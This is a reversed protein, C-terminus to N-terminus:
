EILILCWGSWRGRTLPAAPVTFTLTGTQRCADTVTVTVTSLGAAPGELAIAGDAVRAAAAVPNSSSAASSLPALAADDFLGDLSVRASEGADLALDRLGDVAVPAANPEVVRVM